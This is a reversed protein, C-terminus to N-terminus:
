FYKKLVNKLEEKTVAVRSRVIGDDASFALNCILLLQEETPFLGLESLTTPLQLRKFLQNYEAVESPRDIELHILTTVAIIQGHSAKIASGFVSTLANHLAHATSLGGSEFGLGSLLINAEVVANFAEGITKQQNERVAQEGYRLLIDRCKEAIAFATITPRANLTNVGGNEWVTRAEVFTSLGDAIGAALFHAPSNILVQTDVIVLDPGQIFYDYKKFFGEEDYDVSIRSTPADTSAATPVVICSLGNSLAAKKGQDIARGGGIALVFETEIIPQSLQTQDVLCVEIKCGKKKLGNILDKAILQYVFSDTVVLGNTGFELLKPLHTNLVDEGQIYMGPSVFLKEM